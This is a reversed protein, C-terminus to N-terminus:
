ENLKKGCKICFQQDKKLEEGCNTCFLKDQVTKEKINNEQSKNQTDDIETKTKMPPVQSPPKQYPTDQKKNDLPVKTKFFEKKASFEFVGAIIMIIGSLLLFIGGIGLGWQLNLQATLDSESITTQYSGGFPSASISNIMDNTFNSGAGGAISDSMSNVISGMVFIAVIILIFPLILRIGRWIYKSGLKSSVSIGITAIIMFILGIAIFLSFPLILSGFPTPGSSGPIFIQVGNIGDFNLLSTMGETQFTDTLGTGSVGYSVEYWPLFLGIFAIIIGVFCLINGISHLNIGNIYLMSIKRPGLGYKKHRKYIKFMLLSLLALSFLAFVLVFNYLFWELIFITDNAQFLSSSWSLPNEWMLGSERFKPGEPGIQGLFSAEIASSETEPIEGWYGDYDIWSQYEIDELTYDNPNLIKGNEGVKDSSIGLKGSYSRLYNAHSGRAVYVKIHNGQKEVQSWTAIQGSHHQSYAVTKPVDNDFEIQVMEWDGEHQNLEGKNFAYFIWYQIVDTNGSSYSRHYVTYGYSDMVTRYHSIVGNDAITGHINDYYSTDGSFNYLYKLESNQLHYDADVPFCTEESEFYFIPSYDEVNPQASSTITLGCLITIFFICLVSIKKYM